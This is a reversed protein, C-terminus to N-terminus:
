LAQTRLYDIPTSVGHTLMGRNLSFALVVSRQMVAELITNVEAPDGTDIQVRYAPALLNKRDETPSYKVADGVLAAPRPEATASCPALQDGSGPRM